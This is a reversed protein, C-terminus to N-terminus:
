EDLKLKIGQDTIFKDIQESANRIREAGKGSVYMFHMGYKKLENKYTEFLVDRMEGGNERVEDPYWPIDPKCLLYLDRKTKLLERELWSPYKKYVWEFWVKTILLYTDVFLIKIDRSSYEKVQQIQHRAIHEIDTYNYPRNLNEIYKRAYEPIYRTKYKDALKLALESKGTSEPGTLIVRICSTGTAEVKKEM